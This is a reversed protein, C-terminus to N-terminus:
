SRVEGESVGAEFNGDSGSGEALVQRTDKSFREAIKCLIFATLSGCFTAVLMVPMFSAPEKSHEARLAIVSAPILTLSSVNLALFMCMANSAKDKEGNLTQLEQMAKIGLPTAANDLGLMNAAFNLLIAGAAPHDKPISPFIFRFLPQILRSLIAILGAAEALKMLGLWFAILGIYGVAIGVAGDKVKGASDTYEFGVMNFVEKGIMNGADGVAKMKEEFTTYPHIETVTKGAVVKSTVTGTNATYLATGFGTLIGVIVLFAWVHNLM